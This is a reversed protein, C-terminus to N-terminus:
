ESNRKLWELRFADPHHIIKFDDFVANFGDGDPSAAMMGVMAPKQGPFYTMNSMTYNEGNLSYYIEVSDNKRLAKVWIFDPKGQLIVVNWSETM